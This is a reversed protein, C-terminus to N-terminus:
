QRFYDISYVTSFQRSWDSTYPLRFHNLKEKRESSEYTGSHNYLGDYAMWHFNDHKILSMFHNRESQYLTIMGLKFTKDSINVTKPITEALEKASAKHSKFLFTLIYPKRGQKIMVKSRKIQVKCKDCEQNTLAGNQISNIAESADENFLIYIQTTKATGNNTCGRSCIQLHQYADCTVQSYIMELPNGWLSNIKTLPSEPLSILYNYLLIHVGSDNGNYAQIACEKFLKEAQTDEPLKHIATEGNSEKFAICSLINDTPSTDFIHGQGWEIGNYNLHCTFCNFQETNDAIELSVCVKHYTECCTICSVLHTPSEKTDVPCREYCVLIESSNLLGDLKPFQPKRKLKSKVFSKKSAERREQCINHLQICVDLPVDLGVCKQLNVKADMQGQSYDAIVHSAVTAAAFKMLDQNTYPKKGESNKDYFAAAEGNRICYVGLQFLEPDMFIQIQGEQLSMTQPQFEQLGYDHVMIIEQFKPEPFKLAGNYTLQKDESIYKNFNQINFIQQKAKEEEFKFNSSRHM